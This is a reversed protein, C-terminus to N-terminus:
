VFNEKCDSAVTALAFYVVGIITLSVFLFLINRLLEFQWVPLLFNFPVVHFKESHVLLIKM